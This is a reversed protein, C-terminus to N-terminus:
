PLERAADSPRGEGLLPERVQALSTRTHRGAPQADGATRRTRHVGKPGGRAARDGRGGRGSGGGGFRRQGSGAAPDPTFFLACVTLLATVGFANRLADLRAAANVM